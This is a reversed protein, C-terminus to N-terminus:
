RASTTSVVLLLGVLGVFVLYVIGFMLPIGSFCAGEVGVFCPGYFYAIVLVVIACSGLALLGVARLM